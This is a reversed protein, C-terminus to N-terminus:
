CHIRTVTTFSLANLQWQTAEVSRCNAATSKGQSKMQGSFSHSRERGERCHVVLHVLGFVIMRERSELIRMDNLDVQWPWVLSWQMLAAEREGVAM